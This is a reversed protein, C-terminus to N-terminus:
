VTGFGLAMALYALAAVGTVGALTAYYVAHSEGTSSSRSFWAWLPPVTGAAMALAGLWAWVATDVLM